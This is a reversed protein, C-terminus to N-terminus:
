RASGVHALLGGIREFDEALTVRKTQDYITAAPHFVPFVIRGDMEVSLGRLATIPETTALLFRTAFNGLTVILRPDVIEIQAMLFPTCSDIEASKPNRNRPPRCKLVNAIYVDDRRLGASSLLGDLMAGAAGVFPEGTLDENRGPAEGVIMVRADPNGSGFVINARTTALECRDCEGIHERLGTLSHCTLAM